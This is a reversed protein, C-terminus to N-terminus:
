GMILGGAVRILTWVAWWGFVTIYGASNKKGAVCAIGTAMLISSWVNVIDFQMCLAYLAKPTEDISLFYAVNTGAFNNINFSEPALGAFLALAGLLPQLILPLAAYFYVALVEGYAAKGGFGFNITGWLLLAVLLGGVIAFVPGAAASVETITATMKMAKERQEPQMQDIQEAQKPNSKMVNEAVQSWGVKMTVGAFLVYSFAVILIFPLWWSRRGRKIDEFTKSPASFICIIRQWQSLYPATEVAPQVGLDSM